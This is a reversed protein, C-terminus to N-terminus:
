LVLLGGYHREEVESLALVAEGADADHVLDPAYELHRGHTHVLNRREVGHVVSAGNSLEVHLDASRYALRKSM